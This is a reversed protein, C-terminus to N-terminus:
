CVKPVGNLMNGMYVHPQDHAVLGSQACTQLMVVKVLCCDVAAAKLMNTCGTHSHPSADTLVHTGRKLADQSRGWSQEAAFCAFTRPCTIRMQM